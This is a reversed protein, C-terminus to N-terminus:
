NAIYCFLLTLHPAFYQCAVDDKRVQFNTVKSCISGLLPQGYQANKVNPGDLLTGSYFIHRPFHSIQPHMRYQENLMFIEQGAEELRQFLSRDYKTNRGSVNFITAPLQQPDGVLVCHRSGVQLASLSAPEVSQAAEDIVVVEFKDVGEFVRNGATGLTTMTVHVANMVHNELSQRVEYHNSGAQLSGKMITSQELNSKISFYAEVSKVIRAMYMKYEPMSRGQFQQEGPEPPPPCEYTTMKDKHNVFYVQGTEDFTTEDVRIEWGKGLPWPTANAIAHVRRRCKAIDGTIRQMEMRYGAISSELQGLDLHDSIIQDVKTELAVDKVAASQGVGVRIMSPNYRQGSGDIFGDEMIKLIINDVAANSPACVLLRPKARRAMDLQQQRNGTTM